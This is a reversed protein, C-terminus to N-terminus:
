SEFDGYQDIYDALEWPGENDYVQVLDDYDLSDYSKHYQSSGQKGVLKVAEDENKAKVHYVEVVSYSKLVEYVNMIQNEQHPTLHNEVFWRRICDLEVISKKGINPMKPPKGFGGVFSGDENILDKIQKIEECKQLANHVRATTPYEYLLEDIDSELNM